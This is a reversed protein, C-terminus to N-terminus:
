QFLPDTPDWRQQESIPILEPKDFPSAVNPDEYIQVSTGIACNDYIWKSNGCTLRVCGLSRTVGLGNYDVTLLSDEKTHEYTISHLLFGQTIRTAYQTYTDNVMLRWRYKEPTKFTGIPTDDGVSTLMAKVPIIYGNDGDKAYVTLCNLTKNVKLLYSSQKGILADVDQVLRGWSDFYFKLGDVYHWGTLAVGDVFYYREHDHSMWGNYGTGDENFLITANEALTLRDSVNSRYRPAGSQPAAGGKPVMVVEVSTLKEGIDKTGALEGNKAYGMKGQGSSTVSYYVDFQKEAEGTLQLQIAEVYSGDGPVGTPLGDHYWWLFGGTNTYARYSVGGIGPFNMLNFSLATVDGHSEYAYNVATHIATNQEAPPQEPQGQEPQAPQGQQDQNQQNQQDNTEQTGASGAPSESQSQQPPQAGSAEDAPGAFATFSSGAIMAASLAIALGRYHKKM